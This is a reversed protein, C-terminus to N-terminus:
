SCVFRECVCKLGKAVRFNSVVKRNIDCERKPSCDSFGLCTIEEEENCDGMVRAIDESLNYM